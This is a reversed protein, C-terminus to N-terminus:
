EWRLAVMPDVRTARKAPLWSALMVIATLATAGVVYTGVDLASVRFLLTRMLRTLAVAGVFGAGIGIGALMVGHRAIMQLVDEPKAGLAMRIGIEHNRQSVSYAMVGYVGVGALLLALAAFSAILTVSLRRSTTNEAVVSELTQVAYVPITPDVAHVAESIGGAVTSADGATRVVLAGGSAPRQMNPLLIEPRSPQDVGYNKVHAVVGVITLWKPEEGPKPEDIAIRKGVAEGEFNRTVFTEDVLCVRQGTENDHPDFFRGSLLRMGMAKPADPSVRSFDASPYEGDKPKPKGEALYASQWGGLLPNKFGAAEVGPLQQLKAVVANVFARKKADDPYTADPLSFRATLAHEPRIGSDAQLVKWLSKTMLGAGVLLMLALALEVTVLVDRLRLKRGSASSTRADERLADQLETRTAQMAPVIGFVMGTLVSVAFSFALVWRDVRVEDMRPVQAATVAHAMLTTLWVALLLGLAGGILSLLLSETLMQRILRRRGAGLAMRVALGRYRETARALQLNAVNVCVILLVCGVAALLVLLPTRVDEVVAELLPGVVVSDKGNTKPYLEDLHQAIRKMEDQAQAVTVGPKLRGYANIGPHDGRHAEGGWRDEFRWLSTFLETRRMSQHLTGPVVGIVTYPEDDLVLTQGLIKPDGGFRREWFGEGLLVVREGGVKDEEPRMGRGLMPQVGLTPLLSATIRRLGLREPEGRGSMVVDDNQYAGMNEFTTNQARWDNFNAMSISMDPIAESSEHLHMVRDAHPYPLPRLLVGDVVSFIATTAGIGLALTLVAVATFGPSKRLMRAGFRLDQWLAEVLGVGKVERIEEKAQEIGGFEMKARRVAENKGMGQRVLDEARMEVHARMEVEMEQEMRRRSIVAKVRRMMRKM